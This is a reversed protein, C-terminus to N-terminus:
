LTPRNEPMPAKPKALIRSAMTGTCVAKAILLIASPLKSMLLSTDM